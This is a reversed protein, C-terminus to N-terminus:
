FRPRRQAPFINPSGVEVYIAGHGTFITADRSVIGAATKTRKLNIHCRCIRVHRYSMDPMSMWLCIIQAMKSHVFSMESKCHKLGSPGKEPLLINSVSKM